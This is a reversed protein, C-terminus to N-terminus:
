AKGGNRIKSIQPFYWLMLLCLLANGVLILPLGPDKKVVVELPPLDDTGPKGVMGLHLTLGHWYVPELIAIDRQEATAGDKLELKARCQQVAGAPLPPGWFSCQQDLITIQRGAVTLREGSTASLRQKVGTFETLAHGGIIFLFCFHMISPALLLFFIGARHNRRKSWLVRVRTLTCCLTNGFLLGLLLFLSFIWWSSGDARSVLWRSFLQANLEGFVPLFKAYYSGVFLNLCILGLLWLTLRISGLDQWLKGIM